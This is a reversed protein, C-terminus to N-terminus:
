WVDVYVTIALPLGTSDFLMHRHPDGAVLNVGSQPDLMLTTVTVNTSDIAAISSISNVGSSGSVIALPVKGLGHAVTNNKFLASTGASSVGFSVTSVGTRNGTAITNSGVDNSSVGGFVTGVTLLVGSSTAYNASVNGYSDRAKVRYQYTNGYTVDRDVYNRAQGRWVEGYAGAGIRRELVYERLNATTVAPWNVEILRGMGQGANCSSVDAPLTAYGAATFTTVAGGGGIATADFTGQVVGQVGFGNVAWAKLQYVEGPRLGTLTLGYRGGGVASAQALVIESTTNHIAAIWVQEWNVAPPFCDATVRAVLTGDGQLATATATIRFGTPIAPPTNSYDPMYDVAASGQLVGEVYNALEASYAQADIEVGGPMDRVTRVRWLSEALGVTRSTVQIVDGIALSRRFIRARMRAHLSALVSRYYASRDAVVHSRIYRLDRPREAPGTGGVVTRTQTSQLQEPDRPSPRYRVSVSAPRAGETVGLVEIDDGADEDLTAVTASTTDVVIVYEGASNRTLTARLIWLLDEIIARATRQGERGFDCDAFLQNTLAFVSAATQASANLTVGAAQMVAVLPTTVNPTGNQADVFILFRSGDFDRQEAAFEIYRYAFPTVEAGVSYEAPDVLRADSATKGRYVSLVTATSPECIVFRYPAASTVPIAPLKLATGYIVPVARGADAEILAPFDAVQYVRTPFLTNLRADEIDTLTLLVAGPVRERATCTLRQQRVFEAGTGDDYGVRTVTEVDVALGDVSELTLGAFPGFETLLEDGDETLLPTFDEALLPECLDRRDQVRLRISAGASVEEIWRDELEADAGLCAIHEIGGRVEDTTGIAHAVGALTFRAFAHREHKVVNPM